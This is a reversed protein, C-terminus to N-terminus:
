QRTLKFKASEGEFEVILTFNNDDLFEVESQTTQGESSVYYTSGEKSWNGNQVEDPVCGNGTDDSVFTEVRVSFDNGFIFKNQLPCPNTMQILEYVSQGGIWVDTIKWTGVILDVNNDQGSDDDSSCSVGILGILILPLILFKMKKM